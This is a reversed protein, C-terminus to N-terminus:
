LNQGDFQSIELDSHGDMGNGDNRFYMFGFDMWVPSWISHEVYLDHYCERYGRDAIQNNVNVGDILLNPPSADGANNGNITTILITENTGISITGPGFLTQSHASTAVIL